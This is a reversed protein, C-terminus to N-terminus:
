MFVQELDLFPSVQRVQIEILVMAFAYSFAINGLAVFSSWIKQASTTDVGVTTGSLSTRAHTGEALNFFTVVDHEFEFCYKKGM